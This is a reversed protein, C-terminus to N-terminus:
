SEMRLEELGEGRPPLDHPEMNGLAVTALGLRTLAGVTVLWGCLTFLFALLLRFGFVLLEAWAGSVQTRTFVLVYPIVVFTLLGAAYILVSRPSLARGAVRHLKKLTAKFGEHALAIWLQVCLLPLVVGLLLLRLAPFVFAQWHVPAPPSTRPYPLTSAATTTENIPFRAQLKNLLYAVLLGLAVLPISVLLLKWFDRLARRLLPRLGEAPAFHVAAAQLLFFLLPAALALAASLVLRPVTSEKTGLFLYVSGLLAFYLLACLALAGPKRLLDRAAAGTATLADKM